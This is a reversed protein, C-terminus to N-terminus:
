PLPSDDDIIEIPEKLTIKLKFVGPSTETAEISKANRYRAKVDDSQERTLGEYILVDTKAM